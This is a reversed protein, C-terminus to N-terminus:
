RISEVLKHFEELMGTWGGQSSFRDIMDVKQMCVDEEQEAVLKFEALAQDWFGDLYQRM